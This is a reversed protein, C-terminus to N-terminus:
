ITYKSITEIVDDYIGCPIGFLLVNEIITSVPTTTDSYKCKPRSKLSLKRIGVRRRLLTHKTTATHTKAILRLPSLSIGIIAPPTYPCLSDNLFWSFKLKNHREISQM